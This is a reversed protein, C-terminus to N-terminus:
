SDVNFDLVCMWSSELKTVHQMNTAFTLWKKINTAEM